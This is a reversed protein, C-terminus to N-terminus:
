LCDKREKKGNQVGPQLVVILEQLVAPFQKSIYESVKSGGHGDFVGFLISNSCNDLFRDHVFCAPYNYITGDEMGKRM